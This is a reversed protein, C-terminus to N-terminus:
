ALNEKAEAIPFVQPTVYVPARGAILFDLSVNTIEQIKALNEVSPEAEGREWKRYRAGEVGLLEALHSAHEFNCSVRTAKLRLAFATTENSRTKKVMAIM